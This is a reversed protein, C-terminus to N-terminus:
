ECVYEVWKPSGKPKGVESKTVFRDPSYQLKAIKNEGERKPKNSVIAIKVGLNSLRSLMEDIGPVVMGDDRIITGDLNVMLVKVAM